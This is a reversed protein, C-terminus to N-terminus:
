PKYIYERQKFDKLCLKKLEMVTKKMWGIGLNVDYYKGFALYRCNSGVCYCEEAHFLLMDYETPTKFMAEPQMGLAEHIM